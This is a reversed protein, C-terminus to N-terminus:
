VLDRQDCSIRSVGGLGEGDLLLAKGRAGEGMTPPPGPHPHDAMLNKVDADPILTGGISEGGAPGQPPAVPATTRIALAPPPTRLRTRSLRFFILRLGNPNM